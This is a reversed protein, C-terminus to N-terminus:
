ANSRRGTHPLAVPLGLLALARFTPALVPLALALHDSALWALTGLRFPTRGTNDDEPSWSSQKGCLM